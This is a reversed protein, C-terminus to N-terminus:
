IAELLLVYAALNPVPEPLFKLSHESACFICVRCKIEGALSENSLLLEQIANEDFFFNWKSFILDLKVELLEVKKIRFLRAHIKVRKLLIKERVKIQHLIWYVVLLVQFRPLDTVGLIQALSVLFLHNLLTEEM